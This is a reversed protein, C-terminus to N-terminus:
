SWTACPPTTLLEARWSVLKILDMPYALVKGAFDVMDELYFRWERQRADSM